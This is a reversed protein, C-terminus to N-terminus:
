MWRGKADLGVPWYPLATLVEVWSDHRGDRLWALLSLEPAIHQDDDALM